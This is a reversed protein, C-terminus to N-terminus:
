NRPLWRHLSRGNPFWRGHTGKTHYKFRHDSTENYAMLWAHCPGCSLKSVGIYNFQTALDAASKRHLFAVLGCECHVVGNNIGTNQNNERLTKQLCSAEKEIMRTAIKPKISEYMARIIYALEPQIATDTPVKVAIDPTPSVPEVTMPFVFLPRLERLAAANILTQIHRDKSTLTKM